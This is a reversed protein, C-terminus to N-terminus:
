LVPSPSVELKVAGLQGGEVLRRALRAGGDVQGLCGLQDVVARRQQLLLHRAAAAAAPALAGEGLLLLAVHKDLLAEAHAEGVALDDVKIGVASCGLLAPHLHQGLGDALAAAAAAAAAAASRTALRPCVEHKRAFAGRSCLRRCLLLLLLLLRLL